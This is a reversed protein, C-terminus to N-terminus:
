EAELLVSGIIAKIDRLVDFEDVFFYWLIPLYFILIGYGVLCKLPMALIFAQLQPAYLSILSIGFDVLLLVVMVPFAYVVMQIFISGMLKHWVETGETTITPFMDFVPWIGYSDYIVSLLITFGGMSILLMIITQQFFHGSPSAASTIAPNFQGGILAGRQNDFITGVGDIIWFPICLVVAIVLGIFLEKATFMIIAFLGLDQENLPDILSYAVMLSLSLVIGNNLLQNKASLNLAPVLIFSPLIRAMALPLAIIWSGLTDIVSANFEM